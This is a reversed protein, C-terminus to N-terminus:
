DRPIPALGEIFETTTLLEPTLRIGTVREALAFTAATVVDLDDIAGEETAFGVERMAAVLCDPDSGGRDWAFLPEFHLKPKGDEFWDFHDVANVNRYHSVATRGVSLRSLVGDLTGIYGNPEVLVSWDHLPAVGLYGHTGEHVQATEYAHEDLAVVGTSHGQVEARLIRLVEPPTIGRVLTICYAEALRAFDAEFWRYDDATAHTM